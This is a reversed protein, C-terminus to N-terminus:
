NGNLEYKQNGIIWSKSMKSYRFCFLKSGLKSMFLNPGYRFKFGFSYEDSLPYFNIGNHVLKDEKIIHIM